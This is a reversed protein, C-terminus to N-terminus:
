FALKYIVFGLNIKTYTNYHCGHCCSKGWFKPSLKWFSALHKPNPDPESLVNKPRTKLNGYLESVYTPMIKKDAM